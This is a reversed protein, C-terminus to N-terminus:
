KESQIVFPPENSTTLLSDGFARLRQELGSQRSAMTLEAYQTLAYNKKEVLEKRLTEEEIIEQQAAYRNSIYFISLLVLFLIFWIQRRLFTGLLFDGFLIERLSLAPEFPVKTRGLKPRYGRKKTAADAAVEENKGDVQEEGSGAGEGDSAVAETATDTCDPSIEEDGREVPVAAEEDENVEIAFPIDDLASTEPRVEDQSNDNVKSM